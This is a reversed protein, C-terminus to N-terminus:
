QLTTATAEKFKGKIKKRPISQLETMIRSDRAASFATDISTARLTVHGDNLPKLMSTFVEFLQEDTVQDTIKERNNQCERNWDIEKEEFSAYNDQFLQCFYDFTKLAKEQSNQASCPLISLISITLIAISIHFKM